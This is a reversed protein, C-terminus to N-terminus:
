EAPERVKRRVLFVTLGLGLLLGGLVGIEMMALRFAETDEALLDKADLTTVVIEKITAIMGVVLFPEAVLRRERMTAQVAGLLEVLIFVMLLSDLTSRVAHKVGEDMGTALEHVSAVLLAVAGAVLVLAVLGYIVNEAGQLGRGVLRDAPGEDDTPM